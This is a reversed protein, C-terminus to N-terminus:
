SVKKHLLVKPTKTKKEYFLFAAVHTRNVAAVIGVDEAYFTYGVDKVSAPGVKGTYSSKILVTQYKGAPVTVEYAGVYIHVVKLRGKYKEHTPNHLDYVVIDTEVEDRVGPRMGNFIVPFQPAYTTIVDEVLDAESAM